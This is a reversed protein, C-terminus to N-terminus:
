GAQALARREADHHKGNQEFAFRFRHQFQRREAVEAINVQREEILQRLADADYQIGDGGGHPGLLQELLALRQGLLQLLGVGLQFFLRVQQGLLLVFHFGLIAFDLLGLGREFLLGLLERQGRLILALEQRVHAVFQTRRQIVQQDQRLHQRLVAFAGQRGFCTFYASVM